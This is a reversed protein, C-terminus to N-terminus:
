YKLIPAPTQLARKLKSDKDYIDNRFQIIGDSDTWTTWYLVHIDPQNKLTVTQTKRTDVISDIKELNWQESNDLLYESLEIPNQVRICGSSFTRESKAFLEKNPTDHLYVSHKNPFIFKVAGLSNNPGPSQVYSYSRSTSSYFNITKPNLIAGKSDYVVINKSKLYNVNKQVSPLIDKRLIGPPVMWTPNFILNTMKSSFVPTKRDKRGVIVKHFRERKGNKIVGLTFDPINVLMHFSKLKPAYWRWRELNAKIQEIRENVSINMIKLTKKGIEGDVDIGHRQQFIKIAAHLEEDYNNANDLFRKPLDKTVVLRKRVLPIRSDEMGLKISVGDQIPQWGGDQKYDMYKKLAKKLGIYIEHKPKIKEISSKISNNLISKELTAALNGEDIVINWKPIIKDQDVKGGLLHSTYLLYADTLLIDLEAKEFNSRSDNNTLEKIKESHYDNPNLGEENAKGLEKTLSKIKNNSKWAPEYLRNEYFSILSEKCHIIQNDIIIKGYATNEIKSRITEKVTDQIIYSTSVLPLICIFLLKIKIIM